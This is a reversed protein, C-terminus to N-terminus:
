LKKIEIPVRAKETLEQIETAPLGFPEFEVGESKAESLRINDTVINAIHRPNIRPNFGVIDFHDHDFTLLYRAWKMDEVRNMGDCEHLIDHNTIIQYGPRLLETMQLEKKKAGFSYYDVDPSDTAVENFASINAHSFEEANKFNMGLVEFAKEMNYFTPHIDPRRM